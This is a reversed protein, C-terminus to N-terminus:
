NQQLKKFQSQYELYYDEILKIEDEIGQSKQLAPQNIGRFQKNNNDCIVSKQVSDHIFFPNDFNESQIKIPEQTIAQISENEEVLTLGFGLRNLNMTNFNVLSLFHEKPNINSNNEINKKFISKQNKNVKKARTNTIQLSKEKIQLSKQNDNNQYGKMQSDLKQKTKCKQNSQNKSKKKKKITTRDKRMIKFTDRTYDCNLTSLDNNTIEISSQNKDSQYMQVKKGM